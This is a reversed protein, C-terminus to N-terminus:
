TVSSAASPLRCTNAVATAVAVCRVAGSVDCQWWVAMAGSDDCQVVTGMTAIVTM